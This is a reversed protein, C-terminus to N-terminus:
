TLRKRKLVQCFIAIVSIGLVASALILGASVANYQWMGEQLPAFAQEYDLPCLPVALYTVVAAFVAHLLKLLLYVSTKFNLFTKSQALVCFGGFSVLFSCLTIRIRMPAEAASIVACGQTMEFIGTTIGYSLKEDFGLAKFIIAFPESVWKLIGTIDAMRILVMFFVITGGMRIMAIMGEFLSDTFAKWMGIEKKQVDSIKVPDPIPSILFVVLMLIFASAYHGIAVPIGFSASGLM